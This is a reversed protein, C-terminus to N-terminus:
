NSEYTVDLCDDLELDHVDANSGLWTIVQGSISYSTGKTQKVGNVYFVVSEPSIPVFSLQSTLNVDVGSVNESTLTEERHITNPEANALVTDLKTKDVASMFGDVTPTVLAHLSGGGLNGHQTDNQLVGVGISDPAVVISGDTAVVDLDNANLVLGAGAGRPDGTGTWIVNLTDTGVTAGGANNTVSWIQDANTGKEVPIVASAQDSGATFDDARAWAGLTNVIWIGNDTSPTQAFVAVRDGDALVAGQVTQAGSLTISSSDELVCVSNKADILDASVLSDLKAKDAPSMFGAALVTAQAHLTGGGRDGHAHQHDSRSLTDATGDANTSDSIEVPSGTGIQHKHDARAPETSTGTVAAAADTNTPATNSVMPHQHDERALNSSVGEFAINDIANTSTAGGTAVEHQHDKKALGDASGEVAADGANIISQSGSTTDIQASTITNDELQKGKIRGAM